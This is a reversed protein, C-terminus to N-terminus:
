RRQMTYIYLYLNLKLQMEQVMESAYQPGQSVDLISSKVFITFWNQLLSWRLHRFLNQVPM